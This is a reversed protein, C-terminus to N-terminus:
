TWMHARDDPFDKKIMEIHRDTLSFWENHINQKSCKRHLHTEIAASNSCAIVYVIELAFPCATQLDFLRKEVNRSTRGIKYYDFGACRILYVYETKGASM